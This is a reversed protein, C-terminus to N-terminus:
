RKKTVSKTAKADLEDRKLVDYPSVPTPYQYVKDLYLTRKIGCPGAPIIGPAVDTTHIIAPRM